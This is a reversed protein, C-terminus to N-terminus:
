ALPWRLWSSARAAWGARGRAAQYVGHAARTMAALDEADVRVGHRVRELVAACTEMGELGVRRALDRPQEGPVAHWGADRLGVLALQWLNSVRQDVAEPWLGLGLHRVTLLRRLPRMLTQLALGIVAFTL